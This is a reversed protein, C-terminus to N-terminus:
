TCRAAATRGTCQTSCWRTAILMQPLTLSPDASKLNLGFHFVVFFGLIALLTVVAIQAFADGPLAGYLHCVFLLGLALLSTGAATLYRGMRLVQQPDDSSSLLRQLRGTLFHGNAPVAPEGTDARSASM